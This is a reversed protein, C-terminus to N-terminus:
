SLNSPSPTNSSSSAPVAQAAQAMPPLFRFDVAAVAVALIPLEPVQQPAVQLGMEVAVPRAMEQRDLVARMQAAAVAARTLLAQALFQHHQELVVM